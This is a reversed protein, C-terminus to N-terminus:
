RRDAFLVVLAVVALVGVVILTLTGIVIVLIPILAMLAQSGGAIWSAQRGVDSRVNRGIFLYFAVLAGAVILAPWKPIVHVVVLLGELVAIWLAVRLRRARLWRGAASTGHDVVSPHRLEVM